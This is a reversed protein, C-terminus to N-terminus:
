TWRSLEKNAFHLLRRMRLVMDCHFPLATRRDLYAPSVIMWSLAHLEAAVSELILHTEIEFDRAESSLGRGGQKVIGRIIKEQTIVEM